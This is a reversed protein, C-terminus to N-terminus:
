FGKQEIIELFTDLRIIPIGNFEKLFLLHSKDGTVLYDAQGDLALALLFNDDPDPSADVVSKVLTPKLRKQLLALFGEVKM